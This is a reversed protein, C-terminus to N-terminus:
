LSSRQIHWPKIEKITQNLLAFLPNLVYILKIQHSKEKWPMNQIDLKWFVTSKQVRNIKCCCYNKTEKLLRHMFLYNCVSRLVSKEKITYANCFAFCWWFMISDKAYSKHPNKRCHIMLFHNIFSQCSYSSHGTDRICLFWVQLFMIVARVKIMIKLFNTLQKSYLTLRYGPLINVKLM